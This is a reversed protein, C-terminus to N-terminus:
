YPKFALLWRFDSLLRSKSGWVGSFSINEWDWKNGKNLTTRTDMEHKQVEWLLYSCAYRTSHKCRQTRPGQLVRSRDYQWANSLGYSIWSGMASKVEPHTSTQEAVADDKASPHPTQTQYRFTFTFAFPYTLPILHIVLPFPHPSPHQPNVHLNPPHNITAM